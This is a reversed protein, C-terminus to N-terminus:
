ENKSANTVMMLEVLKQMSIVKMVHTPNPVQLTLNQM